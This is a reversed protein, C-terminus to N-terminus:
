TAMAGQDDFLSVTAGEVPTTRRNTSATSGLYLTFPGPGNVISGDIVLQGATRETKFDIVETCGTLFLAISISLFTHNIYKM